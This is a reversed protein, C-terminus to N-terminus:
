ASVRITYPSHEQAACVFSCYNNERDETFYEYSNMLAIINHTIHTPMLLGYLVYMCVTSTWLM